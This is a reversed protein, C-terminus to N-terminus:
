WETPRGDPLRWDPDAPLDETRRRLVEPLSVDIGLGPGTPVALHGDAPTLPAPDALYDTMEATAGARASNYHIGLSQEHLPINVACSAVQLSAALSVPGNPNHPVVAVDFCEAMRCIKELEFLGTLSVDPQLVDVVGETLLTRFEWRSTLREGTAIRTSLGGRCIDRLLEDHGPAVPEEVWLLRYQELERLLPRVMPRAVRGHFDLAVELDTGFADRLAAVRAVVSDVAGATEILDFEATANMKVVTFGQALRAKAGAVVDDPRDGAIWAYTKVRDRVRGGLMEHVPVGLARAKRDWLAQEIAATATALVPGGRFFGDKRCRQVAEEIRDADAGTLARTLDDIAGRVAARRKPVIAEGWGEAGDDTRLRVLIWRPAVCYTEIDAIAPM